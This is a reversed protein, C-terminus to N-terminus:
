LLSNSGLAPSLSCSCNFVSAHICSTVSGLSPSKDCRHVAIRSSNSIHCADPITYDIGSSHWLQIQVDHLHCRPRWHSSLQQLNLTCLSIIRIQEYRSQSCADASAVLLSDDSNSHLCMLGQSILGTALFSVFVTCIAIGLSKHPMCSKGLVEWPLLTLTRDGQDYFGM